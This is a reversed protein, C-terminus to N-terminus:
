KIIELKENALGWSPPNARFFTANISPNMLHKNKNGDNKAPQLLHFFQMGWDELDGGYSYRKMLRHHFEIDQWGWYPLNEYWGTSDEWLHRNMLLSISAGMFKGGGAIKDHYVQIGSKIKAVLESHSQMENYQEYPINFRSGWYFHMDQTSEMQQVFEYLKLFSDLLVFCDSDWFCVYKGSSNRFATNIPHVISYNAQGNYKKAIDPPVYVCKFNKRKNSIKDIIKVESGWDCLVLEVDKIKSKEINDLTQHINFEITKSGNYRFNDNKGPVLISLIMFSEQVVIEDYKDIFLLIIL